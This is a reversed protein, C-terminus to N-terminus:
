DSPLNNSDKDKIWLIKIEDNDTLNITENIENEQVWNINIISEKIESAQYSPELKKIMRIVHERQSVANYNKGCARLNRLKGSDRDKVIWKFPRSLEDVYGKLYVLDNTLRFCNEFIKLHHITESRGIKSWYGKKKLGKSYFFGIKTKAFNFLSLGIVGKIEDIKEEEVNNANCIKINDRVIRLIESIKKRKDKNKGMEYYFEVLSYYEWTTPEMPAMEEALNCYRYAEKFRRKIFNNNIRAIVKKYELEIVKDNITKFHGIDLKLNKRFIVYGCNSCKIKGYSSADIERQCKPCPYDTDYIDAGQYINTQSVNNGDSHALAINNDGDINTILEGEDKYKNEDESYSAEDNELEETTEELDKEEENM